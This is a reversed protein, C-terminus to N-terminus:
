GLALFSFFISFFLTFLFEGCHPLKKRYKDIKRFTKNNIFGKSFLFQLCSYFLAKKVLFILCCFIFVFFWLSFCLYNYLEPNHNKDFVPISVEIFFIYYAVGSFCKFFCYEFILYLKIINKFVTKEFLSVIIFNFIIQVNKIM